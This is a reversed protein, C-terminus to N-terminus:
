NTTPQKGELRNKEGKLMLNLFLAPPLLSTFVVIPLCLFNLYDCSQGGTITKLLLM